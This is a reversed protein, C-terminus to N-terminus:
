FFSNYPSSTVMEFLKSACSPFVLRREGEEEARSREVLPLWPYYREKANVLAYKICLFM